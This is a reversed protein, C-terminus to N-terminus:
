LTISCLANSYRASVYRLPVLSVRQTTTLSRADSRCRLPACHIKYVGLLWVHHRQLLRRSTAAGCQM